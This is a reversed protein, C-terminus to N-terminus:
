KAEAQFRALSVVAAGIASGDHTLIFHILKAPGEGIMEVLAMRLMARYAAFQEYVGGDFAVTVRQVPDLIWGKHDLISHLACAVLKASRLTVLRCVEYIIRQADVSCPRAGLAKQVISELGPFHTMDGGAPPYGSDGVDANSAAQIIQSIHASQWGGWTVLQEPVVPLGNKKGFLAIMHDRSLSLLICRAVEGLYMGSLLKEFLYKGKHPTAADVQWDEQCRPLADSDFAGWEINICTEAEPPLPPGSPVWKTVRSVKEVYCGNTGTGIIVGISTDPDLYRQAALVGVTDNLLALIRCPRGARTLAESLLRVPDNGIVGDCTFGKTWDLL